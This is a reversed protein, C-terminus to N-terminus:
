VSANEPTALAFRRNMSMLRNGRFYRSGIWKPSSWESLESRKRTMFPHRRGLLPSRQRGPM